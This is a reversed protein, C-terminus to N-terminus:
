RGACAGRSGGGWVLSRLLFWGAVALLIFPLHTVVTLVVLVVLAVKFLGWWAVPRPGPRDRERPATRASGSSAWGSRPAAGPLDAFLPRLDAGTRAAYARDTRDSHEEASLRGAAYHEGLAAVAQDREADSLRLGDPGTDGTM